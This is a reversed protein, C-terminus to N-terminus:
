DFPNNWLWGAGRVVAEGGYCIVEAGGKGTDIVGEGLM